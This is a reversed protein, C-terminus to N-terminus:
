HPALMWLATAAAAAVAVYVIRKTTVNRNEEDSPEPPPMPSSGFGEMKRLVVTPQVTRQKPPLETPVPTGQVEAKLVQKYLEAAPSDYKQRIVSSRNSDEVPATTNPITGHSQLFANCRDNGGQKMLKIQDATWADMRVSRVFSIHVGLGRDFSHIM